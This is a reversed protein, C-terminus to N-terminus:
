VSAGQWVSRELIEEARDWLKLMTNGPWSYQVIPETPFEEACRWIYQGEKIEDKLLKLKSTKVRAQMDQPQPPAPEREMDDDIEGQLDKEGTDFEADTEDPAWSKPIVGYDALLVRAEATSILPANRESGTDYMSKVINVWAQNVSAHLLDGKEDRQDFLFELTDPLFNQLQEQFTLPFDLRGKGTAKEHQVEMETGRGMAGFQVPWFESPDYGFCLAFGYMLMDMFERMNFGKPLSSLAVLKADVSKAASALVALAGYYDYGVSDLRADRAQMAKTWSTESIGQLLLLGRPARAGLQEFDHEYLAIMLQSLSLARDLACYGLGHYKEDNSINSAGRFFDTERWFRSKKTKASTYELPFKTDGRLKCRIPDVTYLERIPGDAGDRGLEVVFGMNSEWFSRSSFAIGPRWGRMGPAAEFSHFMNTFRSVQNRGGVLRWGRNKDIDIVMNLVGAINPNELVHSRLYSDRDSSEPKYEPVPKGATSKYWQYLDSFIDLSSDGNKGFRSQKSFNQSMQRKVVDGNNAM